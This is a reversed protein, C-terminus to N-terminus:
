GSSMAALKNYTEILAEAPDTFTTGPFYTAIAGGFQPDATLANVPIDVDAVIEGPAIGAPAYTVTFRVFDYLLGADDVGQGGSAAIVFDEQLHQEVADALATLLGKGMDADFAQKPVTRFVRSGSPTTIISCAMADQVNQPGFVVVTDPSSLLQYGM